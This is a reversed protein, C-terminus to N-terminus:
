VNQNVPGVECHDECEEMSAVKKAYANPTKRTADQCRGTGNQQWNPNYCYKSAAAPVEHCGTNVGTTSIGCTLDPACDEHRTCQGECADCRRDIGALFTSTCTTARDQYPLGAHEWSTQREFM